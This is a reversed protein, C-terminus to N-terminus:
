SNRRSIPSPSYRAAYFRQRAVLGMAVLGAAFLVLTEPEPVSANKVEFDFSDNVIGKPNTIDAELTM